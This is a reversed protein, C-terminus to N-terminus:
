IQNTMRRSQISIACLGLLLATIFNGSSWQSAAATRTPAALQLMNLCSCQLHNHCDSVTGVLLLCISPSSLSPCCLLCLSPSCHHAHYIPVILPPLLSFAPGGFPADGSSSCRSAIHDAQHPWYKCQDGSQEGNHGAM